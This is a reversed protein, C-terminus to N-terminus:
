NICKLHGQFSSTINVLVVSWTNDNRFAIHMNFLSFEKSLYLYFYKAELMVKAISVWGGM